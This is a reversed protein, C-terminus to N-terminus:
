TWAFFSAGSRYMISDWWSQLHWTIGTNTVASTSLRLHLNRNYDYDLMNLAMIVKPTESFAMPFYFIGLNEAQLNNWPYADQTSFKGSTVGPQNAPYALWTVGANYLILNGWLDAYITFGAKDIDTLYVRIRWNKDKDINLAQLWTIVKPLADFPKNFIIRKLHKLRLQDGPDNKKTNYIGIQIYSFYISKELFMISALYLTTDSQSNLSAKFGKTIPEIASAKIRINTKHSINISIISVPIDPKSNHEKKFYVVKYNDQQPRDWLYLELTSFQRANFANPLYYFKAYGKDTPSLITNYKTGKSNTTQSAPFYYLMISNPNFATAQTDQLIYLTFM